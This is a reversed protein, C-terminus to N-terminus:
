PAQDRGDPPHARGTEREDRDRGASGLKGFVATDMQPSLTGHHPDGGPVAQGRQQTLQRRGCETGAV